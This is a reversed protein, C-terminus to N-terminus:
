GPPLGLMAITLFEVIVLTAPSSIRDLTALDSLTPFAGLRLFAEQGGIRVLVAGDVSARQGPDFEIEIVETEAQPHGDISLVVTHGIQRALLEHTRVALRENGESLYGM